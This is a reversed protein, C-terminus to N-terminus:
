SQEKGTIMPFEETCNGCIEILIIAYCLSAFGCVRINIFLINLHRMQQGPRESVAYM